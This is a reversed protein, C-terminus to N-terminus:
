GSKITSESIGLSYRTPSNRCREAVSDDALRDDQQLEEFMDAASGTAGARSANLRDLMPVRKDGDHDNVEVTPLVEPGTEDSQRSRLADWELDDHRYRSM